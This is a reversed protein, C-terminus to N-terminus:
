KEKFSMLRFETVTDAQVKVYLVVGDHQAHYVDQWVRSDAYTTMSKYFMRRELSKVVQSVGARDLGLTGADALATRTIALTQVNGLVARVATLDFTPRKKEVVCIVVM